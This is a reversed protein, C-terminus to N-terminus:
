PAVKQALVRGFSSLLASQLYSQFRLKDEEGHRLLTEVFRPLVISRDLEHARAVMNLDFAGPTSFELIKFNHRQLLEQLGTASFVNLRDPPFITASKDWLTQIDFGSSLIGTLFLLGGPVLASHVSDILAPVNSSRDLTDFLSVADLEDKLGLMELPTEIVEVGPSSIAALPAIIMKRPFGHLKGFQAAFIALQTGVDSIAKGHPHYEQLSDTMWEIRPRVIRAARAAATAPALREQWFHGATSDRYFSRVLESSPRNCVWLTGCDGCEVYKFDHRSFAPRAASSGCAPCATLEILMGRNSMNKLDRAVLTEYEALLEAPRIEQPLFDAQDVVTRM